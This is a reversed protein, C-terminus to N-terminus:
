QKATRPGRDVLDQKLWGLVLDGLHNNASDKQRELMDPALGWEKVSGQHMHILHSPWLYSPWQALSVDLIHTAYVITCDRSETERKLFAIFNHRTLLDLDVTVEDLLLVTWPRCIETM